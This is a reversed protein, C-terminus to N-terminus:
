NGQSRGGRWRAWSYTMASWSHPTKRGPGGSGARDVASQNIHSAGSSDRSLNKKQHVQIRYVTLDSKTAPSRIILNAINCIYTMCLCRSEISVTEYGTLLEKDYSKRTLLFRIRESRFVVDLLQSSSSVVPHRKFRTCVTFAAEKRHRFSSSAKLREKMEFLAAPVQTVDFCWRSFRPVCCLARLTQRVGRM